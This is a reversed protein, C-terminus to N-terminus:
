SRMTVALLPLTSHGFHPLLREVIWNEVKAACVPLPPEVEALADDSDAEEAPEQPQVGWEQPQWQNGSRAFQEVLWGNRWRSLRGCSEM